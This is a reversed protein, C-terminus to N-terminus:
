VLSSRVVLAHVDEACGWSLTFGAGGHGYNHILVCSGSIRELELRVEVRGPRLGVKHDLVEADNLNPELIKCKRLIEEATTPDIELSWNNEEATGGLICDNTRPVVYSVALPGLEDNICRSLGPNTTRIIQGRIPFSDKDNCIKRSGLGSCNVILDGLGCLEKVSDIEKELKEISGGMNLFTRVLYGMYLPTEIIPVEAMFGDVYDKPLEESNLRRFSRVVSKWFPDSMPHSFIKVLEFMSVGTEPNEKLELFRQYSLSAWRLVKDRPSVKYPYWYAAAVDSTTKPPLSVAVIKVAFDSELLKIGTTLGSVGCGLIIVKRKKM